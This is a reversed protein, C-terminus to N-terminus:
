YPNAPMLVGGSAGLTSAPVSTVGSPLAVTAGATLKHLGLGAYELPKGAACVAPAASADVLYVAGSGLVTGQGKPDVVLATAEDIGLGHAMPAWGDTVVRALFGVLRGMRDRQAFHTDTIFGALPPLALFNRDLTMYQDYPDSLAETSLVSGNLAGFIFEGLVDCGASTGGIAAGRSWAATLAAEVGTGKWAALYSAQDGGALFIGEAHTIAFSVYASDALAKSTVLLTEVSDVGGIQSYLYDNYGDAGSARLVVIDGGNVYPKWWTFAADVDTGGGMLILAPGAPAVVADVANGTTWTTLGAPKPPAVDVGGGTGSPGGGGGQGGAGTTSGSGSGSSAAGSSTAASEAGGSCSTLTAAAGLGLMGVFVLSRTVVMDPTERALRRADLALSGGAIFTETRDM